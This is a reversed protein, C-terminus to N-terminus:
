RMEGRITDTGRARQRRHRETGRGVDLLDQAPKGLVDQSFRRRRWGGGQRRPARVHEQGVVVGVHAFIEAPQQALVPLDCCHTVSLGRELRRAGAAGIQHQSIHHHRTEVPELQELASRASGLVPLTGTM